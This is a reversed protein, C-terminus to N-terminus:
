YTRRYNFGFSLVPRFGHAAPDVQHSPFWWDVTPGVTLHPDLQYRFDTRVLADSFTDIGRGFDLGLRGSLDLTWPDGLGFRHTVGTNIYTGVQDNRRGEGRDFDYLVYLWPSLPLDLDIGIYAEQTDDGLRARSTLSNNRDYYVWGATLSVPGFQSPHYVVAADYIAEGFDVGGSLQTYGALNAQFDISNNLAQRLYLSGTAGIPGLREGRRVLGGTLRTEVVMTGPQMDDAQAAVVLCALGLGWLTRSM